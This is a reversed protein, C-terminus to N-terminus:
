AKRAIRSSLHLSNHFPHFLCKDATHSLVLINRPNSQDPHRILRSGGELYKGKQCLVMDIHINNKLADAVRAKLAEMPFTRTIGARAGLDALAPQPGTWIIDDVTFDDGYLEEEGSEADIVGALTPVNLGFYYLFTSDQRFYYANNPYNNPSYTNGPLLIVGNGVKERLAARRKEYIEKAFM